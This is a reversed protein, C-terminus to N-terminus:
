NLGALIMCLTVYAGITKIDGISIVRTDIRLCVGVIIHRLKIARIGSQVFVHTRSV